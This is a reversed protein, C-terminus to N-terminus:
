VNQLLRFVPPALGATFIGALIMALGAMAGQQQSEELSLAV